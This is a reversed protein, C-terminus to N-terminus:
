VHANYADCYTDYAIVRYLKAQGPIGFRKRVELDDVPMINGLEVENQLITKIMFSPSKVLKRFLYVIETNVALSSNFGVKVVLVIFISWDLMESKKM